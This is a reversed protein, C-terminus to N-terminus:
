YTESVTTLPRYIGWSEPAEKYVTYERIGNIEVGLGKHVLRLRYLTPGVPKQMSEWTMVPHEAHFEVFCALGRLRELEKELTAVKNELVEVEKSLTM